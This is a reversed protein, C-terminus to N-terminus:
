LDKPLDQNTDKIGECENGTEDSTLTPEGTAFNSLSDLLQLVKNANEVRSDLIFQLKPIVRLRVRKNLEGRIFDASSELGAMTDNSVKKNGYISVYVFCERLDPTVKVETITVFGIRPDQVVTLLLDSIEERLLESVRELRSHLMM